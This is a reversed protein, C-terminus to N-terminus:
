CLPKWWGLAQQSLAWSYTVRDPGQQRTSRTVIGHAALDELARRTTRSPHRVAQAVATTPRHMGDCAGLYDIVARRLKPISDLGARRVVAWSATEDLGLMGCARWLQGLQKVLRTPAEADGVLAIEGFHDREVPSRGLSALSALAVLWDRMHDTIERPQGLSGLLGATVQALEARMQKEQGAHALASRGIQGADADRLRVILFRTGMADLVSYATDITTTCGAIFGCHGQWTLVQGGDAGYPRDWRGDYVERLAAIVESRRDRSMSLVTTFDKVVLVGRQGIQRLLGGTANKARERKPSASLLAAEGTIASAMVVHPMGTVPIIRETKGRGSGGVLMVWVPDGDLFMNAVYAALVIRTPVLDADQLWKAYVAEAQECTVAPAAVTGQALAMVDPTLVQREDAVIALAKALAGHREDGYHREFDAPEFPWDPDHPVAVERWQQYVAAKLRGDPAMGARLGRLIMGLVAAAIEGDHGGGNGGGPVRGGNADADARDARMAATLELTAPIIVPPNHTPQYIEGSYHESGPVPIWGNSKIDGGAIPGQAPWDQEPVWRADILVHYREGRTTFAAERGILRGTRTTAYQDPYDVDVAIAGSQRTCILCLQFRGQWTSPTDTNYGFQTLPGTHALVKSWRDVPEGDLGPVRRRKNYWRATTPKLPEPPATM